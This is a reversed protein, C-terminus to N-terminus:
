QSSSRGTTEVTAGKTPGAGNTEAPTADAGVAAEVASTLAEIIVPLDVGELLLGVEEESSGGGLGAWLLTRTTRFPRTKLAGDLGELGGFADELLIFNNITFRVDHPGDALTVTCGAGNLGSM